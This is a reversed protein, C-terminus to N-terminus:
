ARLADVMAQKSDRAFRRQLSRAFPRGLRALVAGPRSFAYLDYWVGDDAAHWEVSFREEGVAAHDPLPKDRVESQEVIAEVIRRSEDIRDPDAGPDAM